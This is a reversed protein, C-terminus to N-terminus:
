HITLYILVFGTSTIFILHILFYLDNYKENNNENERNIEKDNEKDDM